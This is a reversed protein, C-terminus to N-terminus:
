EKQNRKRERDLMEGVKRSYTKGSTGDGQSSSEATHQQPDLPAPQFLVCSLGHHRRVPVVGTTRAVVIVM